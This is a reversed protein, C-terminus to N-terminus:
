ILEDPLTCKKVTRFYKYYDDSIDGSDKFIISNGLDKSKDISENINIVNNLIQNNNEKIKQIKNIKVLNKKNNINNINNIIIPKRKRKKNLNNHLENIAKDKLGLYFNELGKIYILNENFILNDSNSIIKAITSILFNKNKDYIKEIIEETNDLRINLNNNVFFKSMINNFFSVFNKAIVYDKKEIDIDYYQKRFVFEYNQIDNDSILNYSNIMSSFIDFFSFLDKIKNKDLNMCKEWVYDYGELNIQRLITGTNLLNSELVLLESNSNYFPIKYLENAFILCKNQYYILLLKCMVFGILIEICLKKNYFYNIINKEELYKKLDEEINNIYQNIILNLNTIHKEFPILVEKSNFSYLHMLKNNEFLEVFTKNNLYKIYKQYCKGFEDIPSLYIIRKKINDNNDYNEDINILNNKQTNNGYKQMLNFIFDNQIEQYEKYLDSSPEIDRKVFFFIIDKKIYSGLGLDLITFFKTLIQQNEPDSKIIDFFPILISYKQINTQNEYIYNELDIIQEVFIFKMIFSIKNGQSDLNINPNLITLETGDENEKIINKRVKLGSLLKTTKILEKTTYINIQLHNIYGKQEENNLNLNHFDKILFYIIDDYTLLEFKKNIISNKNNVKFATNENTNESSINSKYNILEKLYERSYKKDLCCKKLESFVFFKRRNIYDEILDLKIKYKESLYKLRLIFDLKKKTLINKVYSNMAECFLELTQENFNSYSKQPEISSISDHSLIDLSKNRNSTLNNSSDFLKSKPSYPKLFEDSINKNNESKDEGDSEKSKPTINQSFINPQPFIKNFSGKSMFSENLKFDSNNKQDNKNKINPINLKMEEKKNQSFISNNINLENDQNINSKEQSIDSNIISQNKLIAVEKDKNINDLDDNSQINYKEDKILNIKENVEDKRLKEGKKNEVYKINTKQPAKDYEYKKNKYNTTIPVIDSENVIHKSKDKTIGYWILFKRVEDVEEFTLLDKIEKYTLEKKNSSIKQLGYVCIEKFFLSMLCSLFYDCHEKNKLLDIFKEYDKTKLTLYVENVLEIKEYLKDKNLESKIENYYKEFNNREKKIKIFLYYSLFEDKNDENLNYEYNSENNIVDKIIDLLPILLNDIYNNIESSAKEEDYYDYCLNLFIIVTRIMKCINCLLDNDNLITKDNDYLLKITEKIALFRDYIFPIIDLPTLEFGQVVKITKTQDCDLCQEILYAISQNIAKINRIEKPDDLKLIPGRKRKYKQVMRERVGKKAPFANADIELKDIDKNKEREEIEKESCMKDLEPIIKKSTINNTKSKESINKKEALKIKNIDIVEKSSNDLIIIDDSDKDDNKEKIDNEEKEEEEMSSINNDLDSSDNLDDNNDYSKKKHFQKTINYNPLFQENTNINIKNNYNDEFKRKDKKYFGKKNKIKNMNREVTIGKKKGAKNGYNNYYNKIYDNNDPNEFNENYNNNVNNESNNAINQNNDDFDINNALYINPSQNYQMLDKNNFYINNKRKKHKKNGYIPNDESPVEKEPIGFNNPNLNQIYPNKQNLHYMKFANKILAEKNHPYPMQMQYVNPKLYRPFPSFDDNQTTKLNQNQDYQIQQYNRKTRKPHPFNQFYIQNQNFKNRNKNFKNNIEEM